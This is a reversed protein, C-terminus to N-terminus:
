VFLHFESYNGGNSFEKGDYAIVLLDDSTGAAGAVFTTQALQAATVPTPTQAAVAVGNVM